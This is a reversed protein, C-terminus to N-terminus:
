LGRQYWPLWQFLWRSPLKVLENDAPSLALTAAAEVAGPEDDPVPPPPDEPPPPPPPPPPPQHGSFHYACKHLTRAQVLCFFGRM